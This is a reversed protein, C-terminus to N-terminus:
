LKVNDLAKRAANLTFAVDDETHALTAISHLTASPSMYVGYEFLSLAFKQYKDRDVFACFERYDRIREQATFMIQLMPGVNQVIAKVGKERFVERLGASLNEGIDWM